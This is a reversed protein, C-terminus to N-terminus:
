SDQRSPVEVLYAWTLRVAKDKRIVVKEIFMGSKRVAEWVGM